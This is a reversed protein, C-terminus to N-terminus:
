TSRCTSGAPRSPRGCGGSAPWWSTAITCGGCSWRSCCGTRRFHERGPGEDGRRRLGAATPGSQQRDSPRRRAPSGDRSAGARGCRGGPRAAVAAAAPAAVPPHHAQGALPKAAHPMDLRFLSEASPAAPAVATPPATIEPAASAAPPREAPAAAATENRAPLQGLLAELGRGLRREKSM